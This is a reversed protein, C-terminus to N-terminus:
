DRSWLLFYYGYLWMIMADGFLICSIIRNKRTEKTNCFAAIFCSALLGFVLYAHSFFSRFLIVVGMFMSYWRLRPIYRTSKQYIYQSVRESLLIGAGFVSVLLCYNRIVFWYSDFRGLLDSLMISLVFVFISSGLIFLFNQIRIKM